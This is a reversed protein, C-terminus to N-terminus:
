SVLFDQFSPLRHFRGRLGSSRESAAPPSLSFAPQGVAPDHTQTLARETQLDTLSVRTLALAQRQGDMMVVVVDLGRESLPPLKAVHM